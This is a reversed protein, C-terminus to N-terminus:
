QQKLSFAHAPINSPNPNVDSQYRDLTWETTPASVLTKVFSILTLLDFM